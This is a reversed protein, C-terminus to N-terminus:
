FEHRVADTLRDMARNLTAPSAAFCARLYGEGGFGFASGPALGVNAKDVLKKATSVCDSEGEIKFFLYFAGDPDVFRLRDVSRMADILIRRGDASRQVQQQLFLDGSQLAEICGRQLFEPVGSTNYQVLNEFVQGLAPPIVLWGVRWGTMAWNKSFSNCVLLLDDAECVQLFSTQAQDTYIFKGYVEDSLIWIGRQRAFDRIAIMQDPPLVWGTPNGPSNLYIAKTKDNCTSFLEELDLQWGDDTLRLAVSSATAQQMHICAYINPWVPSVVVVEDGAGAVAQLAQMMGNMGSGTVIIREEGPAVQFHRQYYDALASRLEPIGRQWTYYTQGSALGENAARCIFEPTPLDGEGVWLPILDEKLRGYNVLEIIGSEPLSRVAPRLSDAMAAPLDVPHGPIDNNRM